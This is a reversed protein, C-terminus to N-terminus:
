GDNYECAALFNPPVMVAVHDERIIDLSEINTWETLDKSLAMIHPNFQLGGQPNGGRGGSLIVSYKSSPPATVMYGASNYSPLSPGNYWINSGVDYIETTWLDQFGSDYGGAVVIKTIKGHADRVEACSHKERDTSMSPGNFWSNKDVNYVFTKASYQLIYNVNNILLM